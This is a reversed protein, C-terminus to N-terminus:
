FRFEARQGNREVGIVGTTSRSLARQLQAADRVAQGNVAYIVDGPRLIRAAPARRDINQIIVGSKFPDLGAAEATAPTMTVVQVGALANRGTLLHPDPAGGPPAEALATLTVQRGNRQVVLPVRSGPRQTAFQYRVAGEDRVEVGGVSLIIDNARLGAREGASRPYLESVLVGEPRPLSLSRALDSTVTQMRAGLWPRVVTDGGSLASEVVRRVMESPIAFGVGNSGGSESAIASNIGILRGQMDVLAGGSNGRNIAADTQIFFAYDSIGVETRALASIIGSTVTQQLGFPNGIALVLDGVQADATNAYSLTPLREGGANIRLVALDVRPDALVLEADFERRDALVVKLSQAGEIVHNNTVIVGDERVIVGSGLSQEMRPGSFRGFFPDRSMSRVVRQAYVNVVAPGARSAVPAFSLQMEARSM